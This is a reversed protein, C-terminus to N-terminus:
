TCDSSASRKTTASDPCKTVSPVRVHSSDASDVSGSKNVTSSEPRDSSLTNCIRAWRGPLATRRRPVASGSSKSISPLPKCAPTPLMSIGCPTAKIRVDGDTAAVTRDPMRVSGSASIPRLRADFEANNNSPYTGTSQCSIGFTTITSGVTAGVPGVSDSRFASAANHSRVVSASVTSAYRM